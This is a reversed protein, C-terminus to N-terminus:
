TACGCVLGAVNFNICIYLIMSSELRNKDALYRYFANFGKGRLNRYDCRFVMGCM